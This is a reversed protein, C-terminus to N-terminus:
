AATTGASGSAAFCRTTPSAVGADLRAVTEGPFRSQMNVKKVVNKLNGLGGGGGDGTVPRKTTRKSEQNGAASLLLREVVVVM